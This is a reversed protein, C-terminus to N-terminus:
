QTNQPNTQNNEGFVILCYFFSYLVVSLQRELITETLMHLSFFLIVFLLYNSKLRRAKFIAFCLHFVLILIGIIGNGIFLNLYQNHSDMKKKVLENYNQNIYELNLENQVDGVGVGWWINIKKLVNISSKTIKFRTITADNKTFKKGKFFYSMEKIEHNLSPTKLVTGGIFLIFGLFVIRKWTSKIYYFILYFYFLTVALISLKSSLVILFSLFFVNLLALSFISIKRKIKLYFLSFIGIVALFSAQFPEKYFIPLNLIGNKFFSGSPFRFSPNVDETLFPLHICYYLILVLVSISFIWCFKILIDKLIITKSKIFLFCFPLLFLSLRTEFVTKVGLSLNKTYSLSILFILFVSISILFKKKKFEFHIRKEKLSNLFISVVLLFVPLGTIREPIIPLLGFSLLAIEIYNKPAKFLQIVKNM